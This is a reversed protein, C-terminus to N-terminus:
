LLVGDGVGEVVPVGVDEVVDVGDCVDEIVDV